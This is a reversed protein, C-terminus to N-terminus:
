GKNIPIDKPAIVRLNIKFDPDRFEVGKHTISLIEVQVDDGLLVSEGVTRTLNLRGLDKKQDSM